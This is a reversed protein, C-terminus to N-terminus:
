QDWDQQRFTPDGGEQVWKERHQKRIDNFYRLADMVDKSDREAGEKMYALTYGHGDEPHLLGLLKDSFEFVDELEAYKISFRTEFDKPNILFHANNHAHRHDRIRAINNIVKQNKDLFEIAEAARENNPHDQILSYVSIVTGSKTYKSDEFLRALGIFWEHQLAPIVASWFDNNIRYLENYKENQLAKWVYFTEYAGLLQHQLQEFKQKYSIGVNRYKEANSGIAVQKTM